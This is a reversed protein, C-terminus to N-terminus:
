KLGESAKQFKSSITKWYTAPRLRQLVDIQYADSGILIRPEKKEVGRLIRAAADEPSTRTMRDFQTVAKEQDTKPVEAGLRALRAISTEVEFPLM